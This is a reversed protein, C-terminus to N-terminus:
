RAQWSPTGRNIGNRAVPSAIVASNQVGPGTVRNSEADLRDNSDASAHMAVLYAQCRQIIESMPEVVKSVHRWRM